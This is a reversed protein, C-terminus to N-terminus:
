QLQDGIARGDRGVLSVEQGPQRAQVIIAVTTTTRTGGDGGVSIVGGGELLLLSADFWITDINPGHWDPFHQQLLNPRAKM